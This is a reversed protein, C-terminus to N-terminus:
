KALGAVAVKLGIDVSIGGRDVQRQALMPTILGDISKYINVAATDFVVKDVFRFRFV